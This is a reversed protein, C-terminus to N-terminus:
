QGGEGTFEAVTKEADEHTLGARDLLWVYHERIDRRLEPARYRYDNRCWVILEDLTMEVERSTAVM